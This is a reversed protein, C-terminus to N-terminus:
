IEVDKLRKIEVSWEEDLMVKKQFDSLHDPNIKIARRLGVSTKKPRGILCYGLNEPVNGSVTQEKIFERLSKSAWSWDPSYAQESAIIIKCEIYKRSDIEWHSPYEKEELSYIKGFHMDMWSGSRVPYAIIDGVQLPQNLIDKALNDM